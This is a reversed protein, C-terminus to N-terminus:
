ECVDDGLRALRVRASFLAADPVEVQASLPEAESLGRSRRTCAASRWLRDDRNRQSAGQEACGGGQQAPDQKAQGRTVVARVCDQRVLLAAVAIDGLRLLFVNFM